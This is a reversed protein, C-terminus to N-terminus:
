LHASHIACSVRYRVKYAREPETVVSRLKAGQAKSVKNLENDYILKKDMLKANDYDSTIEEVTSCSTVYKAHHVLKSVGMRTFTKGAGEAGLDWIMVTVKAWYKSIEWAYIGIDHMVVPVERGGCILLGALICEFDDLTANGPLRMAESAEMKALICQLMSKLTVEPKSLDYEPHAAFYAEAGDDDYDGYPFGEWANLFDSAERGEQMIKCGKKNTVHSKWDGKFYWDTVAKTRNKCNKVDGLHAVAFANAAPM